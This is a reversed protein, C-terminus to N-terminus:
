SEDFEATVGLDQKMVKMSEKFVKQFRSRGIATKRGKAFTVSFTEAFAEGPSSLYHKMLDKEWPKLKAAEKRFTSDFRGSIGRRSVAHGVEHIATGAVDNNRIGRGSKKAIHISNDEGSHLGVATKHGRRAMFKSTEGTHISPIETPKGSPTKELIDMVGDPLQAIDDKVKNLDKQSMPSTKSNHISEAWAEARM